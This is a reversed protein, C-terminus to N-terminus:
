TITTVSLYCNLPPPHTRGKLSMAHMSRNCVRVSFRQASVLLVQSKTPENINSAVTQTQRIMEERSPIVQCRLSAPSGPSIGRQQVEPCPAPLCNRKIHPVIPLPFNSASCRELLSFRPPAEKTILSATRTTPVPARSDLSATQLHWICSHELQVFATSRLM